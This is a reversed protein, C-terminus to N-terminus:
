ATGLATKIADIATAEVPKVGSKAEAVAAAAGLVLQRYPEVEEPAKVSLTEVASQLAAITGSRVEEPKSTLGFGTGRTAGLDRMLATAGASRQGTLYKALASSEGFTDTFDPDSMAVLMGAGSLGRQLTQWELETFDVKTTM